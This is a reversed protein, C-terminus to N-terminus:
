HDVIEIAQDIVASIRGPQGRARAHTWFVECAADTPVEADRGCGQEITPAEFAGGQQQAM